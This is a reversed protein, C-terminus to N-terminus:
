HSLNVTSLVTTSLPSHSANRVVLRVMLTVRHLKRLKAATKKGFLIKVTNRGGKTTILIAKAIVIQPPTGAALGTAPAGHLGIRKATSAALLVQFQGAVQENVSYSVVLGNRLVKRLSKSTVAASAVPGPITPKATVGTTSPSGTSTAGAGSTASSTASGGTGTTSSQPEPEGVVTITHEVSAENGGVDTVTLTVNYTGGYKYSHIVSAACPTRWPVESCPPAGPAFGSVESSGDGFNWTYTAYTPKEVGGVFSAAANLEVNSELGNFGVIEEHNVPTPATFAPVLNVHNLCPGGPQYIRFASANFADNLYYNGAGFTQNYLTGAASEENATVSGGRVLGFMNRCEDVVENHKNDQWANLLPNTVIDQQESAIQTIIVDALGIDCGGDYVNPCSTQNPEQQHPGELEEAKEEKEVKEKEEQTGENVVKEREELEKTNKEKPKEKKEGPKSSPDFGGDQCNYASTRSTPHLLPDGLGDASWPIVGYLITNKDGTSPNSPTIAAHYSCFSNPSASNSSCHSATNGEDTCVTVGPPTLVYYITEMGKPLNERKILSELQERVQKDSLCTIADGEKLPNPDTCGEPLPSSPYVAKDAYSGRFASHYYAPKDTKDTYQTDVAFVSALSGSASSMNQFFQDIVEVWPDLYRYDPDWYVVYTSNQHLVPDAAKNAFTAPELEEGEFLSAPASHRQVGFETGGVKVVHAGAPVAGFLLAFSLTAIFGLVVALRRTAAPRLGALQSLSRVSTPV